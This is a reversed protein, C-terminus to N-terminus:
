GTKNSLQFHNMSKNLDLPILVQCIFLYGDRVTSM